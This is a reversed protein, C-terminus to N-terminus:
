GHNFLFFNVSGWGSWGRRHPQLQRLRQRFRRGHGERVPQVRQSSRKSPAAQLQLLVRHLRLHRLSPAPAQIRQRHNLSNQKNSIESRIIQCQSTGRIAAFHDLPHLKSPGRSCQSCISAFRILLSICIGTLFAMGQCYSALWFTAPEFWSAPWPNRRAFDWNIHVQVVM